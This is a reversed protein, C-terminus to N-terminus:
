SSRYARGITAQWNVDRMVNERTNSVPPFGLERPQPLSGFPRNPFYNRLEVRESSPYYSQLLADNRFAEEMVAPYDPNSFSIEVKEPSSVVPELPLVQAIFIPEVPSAAPEISPTHVPIFDVPDSLVSQSFDVVPAEDNILSTIRSDVSPDELEPTFEGDNSEIVDQFELFSQFDTPISDSAVPGSLIDVDPEEPQDDATLPNIKEQVRTFEPDFDELLAETTPIFPEVTTVPVDAPNEAKLQLYDQSPDNRTVRPIGLNRSKM